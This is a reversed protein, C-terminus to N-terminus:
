ELETELKKKEADKSSESNRIRESIEKIKDQKKNQADTPYQLPKSPTFENQEQVNPACIIKKEPSKEKPSIEDKTQNGNTFKLSDEHSEEIASDTCLNVECIEKTKEIM